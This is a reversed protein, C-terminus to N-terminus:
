GPSYYYFWTEVGQTPLKPSIPPARATNAARASARCALFGLSFVLAANLQQVVEDAKPFFASAFYLSFASYAYVDYWEVLNGVSGVFIARIRRPM